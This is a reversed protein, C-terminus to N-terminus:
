HSSESVESGRNESLLVMQILVKATGSRASVIVILAISEM